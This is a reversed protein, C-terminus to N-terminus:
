LEEDFFLPTNPGPEYPSDIGLEHWRHRGSFWRGTLLSRRYSGLWGLPRVVVDVQWSEGDPRAPLKAGLRHLRAYWGEYTSLVLVARPQQKLSSTAVMHAVRAHNTWLPSLAHAHDTLHMKDSGGSGQWVNEWQQSRRRDAWLGPLPAGPMPLHLEDSIRVSIDRLAQERGAWALVDPLYPGWWRAVVRLVPDKDPRGLDLWRALGLDPRVWGSGFFLLHFLPLWWANAHGRSGAKEGDWTTPKLSPPPPPVPHDGSPDAVARWAQPLWWVWPGADGVAQKSYDSHDWQWGTTDFDVM